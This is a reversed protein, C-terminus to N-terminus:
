NDLYKRLGFSSIFIVLVLDCKQAILSANIGKVHFYKALLLFHLIESQNGYFSTQNLIMTWTIHTVTIYEHDIAVYPTM